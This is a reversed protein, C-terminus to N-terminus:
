DGGITMTNPNLLGGFSFDSTELIADHINSLDRSAKKKMPAFSHLSRQELPSNEVSSELSKPDENM